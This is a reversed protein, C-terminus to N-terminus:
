SIAELMIEGYYDIFRLEGCNLIDFATRLQQEYAKGAATITSKDPRAKGEAIEDALKAFDASLISPAVEVTGAPPLVPNQKSNPRNNKM